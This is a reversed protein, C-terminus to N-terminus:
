NHSSFFYIKVLLLLALISLKNESSKRQIRAYLYRLEYDSYTLKIADIDRLILAFLLNNSSIDITNFNFINKIDVTKKDQEINQFLKQLKSEDEQTRPKIVNEIRKQANECYKKWENKSIQNSEQVQSIVGPKEESQKAHQEQTEKNELPKKEDDLDLKFNELLIDKEEKKADIKM